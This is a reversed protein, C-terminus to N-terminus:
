PLLFRICRTQMPMFRAICISGQRMWCTMILIISRILPLVMEPIEWMWSSKFAAQRRKTSRSRNIRFKRSVEKPIVIESQSPPLYESSTDSALGENATETLSGNEPEKVLSSKDQVQEQEGGVEQMPAATEPKLVHSEPLATNEKDLYVEEQRNLNMSNVISETIEPKLACLLILGCLLVILALICYLIRRLIKM